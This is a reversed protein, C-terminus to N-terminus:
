TAAKACVLRFYFSFNNFNEKIEFKKLMVWSNEAIQEHIDYLIFIYKNKYLRHRAHFCCMVLGAPRMM